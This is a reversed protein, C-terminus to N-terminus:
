FLFNMYFVVMQDEVSRNYTLILVVADFPSIWAGAGFGNHWQKSDEGKLWVRGLDWFGVLGAHGTIAYNKFNAVKYRIEINQYFSKDGSFRNARFGRLNTKGGLSNAQYFEYDGYNVGGGIRYAFVTRPNKHFSFYYRFDTTIRTYNGANSTIGAVYRAETDWLLGTQPFIKSNRSDFHLIANVGGYQYRDFISSDLGNQDFDSIYRDPTDEVKGSLYFVGGMIDIHEAVRKRLLPNVFVYKYRVRYYNKDDTIKETENGLGFYNNTFQPYNIEGFFMFDWGKFISSFLADYSVSFSNTAIAYKATIKQVTSDRFNYTNIKAGGGFWLGDDINYALTVLPMVTNYRFQKRDYQNVKPDKSTLNRSEKGLIMDSKGKVDYIKTKKGLGSVSSSDIFTDHGKGGIARIRIGKKVDGSFHFRDKGKLGYLRIEKTEDTKFIRHYLTDQIKGKKSLGYVTVDTQDRDIRRVDFLEKEETGVVDVKEALLSYLDAAFQQLKNNRVKLIDIIEDGSYQFIEESFENVAKEIVEDTLKTQILEATNIWSDLDPENMFSRDFYMSNLNLGNMDKIDYDFGQMKRVAWNRNVLWILPGETKFYVQDRDRPIPQYVTEGKKKFSAWRWQDEHRDWDGIVLDFLRSKLVWDQDVVHEHDEMTKKLVKGTNEIKKSYGFSKQDRWDGAPREEYLYLRGSVDERYMGLNPDDPVYVIEPNTHYVGVAEAMPPVTIAAFPHAHSIGDQVVDVAFTEQVEDPLATEVYKEVSRLVYQKGDAAEMRFSKTQEGGGRKIIELGGKEKSIDFFRPSIPQAWEKRYNEGMLFRTTKSAEYKLSAPISILSDKYNVDESAHPKIDKTSAPKNFLKSSYYQTLDPNEQDPMVFKLWVDGNEYIDIKSFGPVEKTFEYDKLNAAYTLKSGSGSVVHHFNNIMRYQLNHEHGAVYILDPQDKLLQMIAVRYAKYEPHALDQGAGLFSRYGTYIFGPLPLYLYKNVSLLPFLNEPWHFHGGHNGASVLPHHGAIIIKKDSNKLILDRLNRLINRKLEGVSELDSYECYESLNIEPNVNLWWQTDLIIMVVDDALPVEIPGPCADEPLFVDKEDLYDEIYKEQNSLIEDRDKVGGAWDHNGPIFIARGKYDELIRLQALIRAEAKAYKKSEDDPLGAPYINDGLFVLSSAKGAELIEKEL